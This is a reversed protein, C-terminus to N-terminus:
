SNRKNAHGWAVVLVIFDSVMVGVHVGDKPQCFEFRSDYYDDLTHFPLAVDLSWQGGKHNSM